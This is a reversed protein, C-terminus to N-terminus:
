WDTCTYLTVCPIRSISTFTLRNRRVFMPVYVHMYIVLVDDICILSNSIVISDINTYVTTTSGLVCTTM